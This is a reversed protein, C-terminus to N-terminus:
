WGVHVLQEGVRSGPFGVGEQVVGASFRVQRSDEKISIRIQGDVTVSEGPRLLRADWDESGDPKRTPAFLGWRLPFPQPANQWTVGVRWVGPREFFAPKAADRPDRISAFSESPAQYVHGPAPGWSRIPATGTNRVTIRVDLIGGLVLAIPSFRVDTIEIRPTGGGTLVIPVSAASTNGAMDRAEVHIVYPGDSLLRGGSLRGGTTGDWQHSQLTPRRDRWPDIAFYNGSADTAYVTSEGAKTLRYTIRIDDNEGDGNPSFTALDTQLNAVEIAVTDADRITITGSETAGRGDGDDATVIVTYVGDPLVRRASAGGDISGDFRVEYVDPARTARERLVYPVGDSGVISVEVDARANLSYSIRAPITATAGNPRLVGDSISLTSLLPRQACASLAIVCTLWVAFRM